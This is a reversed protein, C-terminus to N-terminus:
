KGGVHRFIKKEIKRKTEIQKFSFTRKRWVDHLFNKEWENIINHSFAYEIIESNLKKSRIARFIADNELDMFKKVCCNGVLLENGNTKNHIFCLEKIHNKGCACQYANDAVDSDDAIEVYALHWEKKAYEWESSLSKEVIAEFLKFKSM